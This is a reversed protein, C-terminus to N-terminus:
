DVNVYKKSPIRKIILRMHVSERLLSYIVSFIPIFIIMGMIGMLSGGVTVAFLVWISPLGVSGGVVHPYIFNGEIQQLVNFIVMFWLALMPDVMFILFTSIASGIYAGLIPILATFTVLVGILLAYPFRFITLTFFFMAGLILAEICQGSVYSAFTKNTLQLIMILRDARKRPLYSYLLKKGQCALKEKSALLYIAFVFGIIFTTVTSVIGSIISAVSSLAGDALFRTADLLINSIKTWDLTFGELYSEILPNEKIYETVWQKADEVFGPITQLLTSLTKTVEPAVIFVAFFLLGLVFLISLIISFPRILSMFIENTQKEKRFLRNEIFKMPQCLLFAICSGVIFPKLVRILFFFTHIIVDIKWVGVLLLITYALLWMIKKMNKKDLNM